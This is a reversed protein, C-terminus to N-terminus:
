TGLWDDELTGDWFRVANDAGLSVVRLVGDNWLSSRDVSINHIPGGHASWDKRTIWPRTRTDYVYLMGTTYGAWLHSGAGALANIKYVSLTVIGLCTFDTVSYMTVKGDAHGFYVRDLQSGIVAGSTVIGVGPQALPDETLSFAANGSANPRFIRIDKGTALWLTDQIIISFTHGKPVRHFFPSGQLDPLGTEDGLWVCLKGGDDLTWMSGQHRYIKIIERRDHVSSKAHVTSQTAINIEQIDGYNTGLWLRSGEERANGGPKFAFATVRVEKEGHGLSLILEGTTSDWVRTLHGTTCVYHGCIDLLRTDYNTDIERISSKLYPHRRNSNMVEPHDSAISIYGAMESEQREPIDATPLSMMENNHDATHLPYLREALAIHSPTSTSARKPPPLFEPPSTFTRQLRAASNCPVPKAAIPTAPDAQKANPSDFVRHEPVRRPPLGPPIKTIAHHPAIGQTFGLRRADSGQLKQATMQDSPRKTGQLPQFAPQQAIREVPTCRAEIRSARSLDIKDYEPEISEDSSPPTNFPSITKDAGSALPELNVKGGVLNFNTSVKPKDARNVLPPFIKTTNENPGDDISKLAPLPDIKDAESEARSLLPTSAMTHPRFRKPPVPATRPSQPGIGFERLPKATAPQFSPQMSALQFGTPPPPPSNVTVLPPSRPASLSTTSVPRQLIRSSHRPRPVPPGATGLGQPLLAPATTSWPSPNRPMDLSARTSQHAGDQVHEPRAPPRSPFLTSHTSPGSSTSSKNEFLSRLSSVPKQWVRM